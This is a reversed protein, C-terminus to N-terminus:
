QRQAIVRCGFMELLDHLDCEEYNIDKDLGTMNVIIHDEDEGVSIVHELLSFITKKAFDYGKKNDDNMNKTIDKETESLLTNVQRKIDCLSFLLEENM